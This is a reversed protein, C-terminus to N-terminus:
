ADSQCCRADQEVRESKGQVLGRDRLALRFILETEMFSESLAKIIVAVLRTEPQPQSGLGTDQV